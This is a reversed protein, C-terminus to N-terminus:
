SHLLPRSFLVRLRGEWFDMRVRKPQVRDADRKCKYTLNNADDMIHEFVHKSRERERYIYIYIYVCVYM